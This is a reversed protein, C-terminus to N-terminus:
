AVFALQVVGEGFVGQLESLVQDPTFYDNLKTKTAEVKTDAWVFFSLQQVDWSHCKVVDCIKGALKKSIKKGTKEFSKPITASAIIVLYQYSEASKFKKRHLGCRNSKSLIKLIIDLRGNLLPPVIIRTFDNTGAQAQQFLIVTPNICQLLCDLLAEVTAYGFIEVGVFM